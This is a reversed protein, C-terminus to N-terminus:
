PNQPSMKEIIVGELLELREDPRFLGIEAARPYEARTWNRAAPPEAPYTTM